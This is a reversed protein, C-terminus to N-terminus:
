RARGAQDAPPGFGHARTDDLFQLCDVTWAVHRCDMVRGAGGAVLWINAM